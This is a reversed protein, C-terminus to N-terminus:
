AAEENEVEETSPTRPAHRTGVCSPIQYPMQRYMILGIISGVSASSAFAIFPIIGGYATCIIQPLAVTLFAGAIFLATKPIRENDQAHSYAGLFRRTHIPVVKEKAAKKM